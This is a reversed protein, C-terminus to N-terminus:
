LPMGSPMTKNPEGGGPPPPVSEETMPPPGDQPGRPGGGSPGGGRGERQPRQELRQRMQGRQPETLIIDVEKRITELLGRRIDSSEASRVQETYKQLIQEIQSKQEETLDLQGVARQIMTIPWLNDGGGRDERDRQWQEMIQGMKTKQEDTLIGKFEERVKEFLKGREEPSEIKEFEDSYKKWVQEAQTKQEQNLELSESMRRIWDGPNMPGGPGGGRGERGDRGRPGRWGRHQRVMREMDERWQKFQEANLIGKMDVILQARLEEKKQEMEEGYTWLTTFNTRIVERVKAAQQENLDYHDKMFRMTELVVVDISPVKPFLRNRVSLYTIGSGIMIGFCLITCGLLTIQVMRKRRMRFRPVEPTRNDSVSEVM